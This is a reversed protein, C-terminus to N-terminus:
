KKERRKSPRRRSGHKVYVRKAESRAENKRRVSHIRERAQKYATAHEVIPAPYDKGIVCGSWQQEMATMTHPEALHEDSVEALEPVWRRIFVGTPDQDRVQKIPSYIRVTNIGTVGSQMQFQPFHIGPEFDLFHKALFVATPRWHLWLHYAAFSALMARMRFNVWGTKKLCRICADVMPYGTQGDCWAEFRGQDFENERLGDYARSLNEFELRPEDELKQMFHCHWRLRGAFSSLSQLWRGDVVGGDAKFQRLEVRRRELAQHVQRIGIAGWALYPSLRSCGQWGTVPSSMDARYNVGRETLFTDLVKNAVSEGGRQAETKENKPLGLEKISQLRGYEIGEPWVLKDPKQAVPQKMREQWKDSWGNRNKLRRVVGNQPIETWGVGHEDAWARVRLDRDFTIRNGTEEHSWIHEIPGDKHLDNLVGPMMGVRFTVGGGQSRLWEDVEVLCENIFQVHSSDFEASSLLEPEYVYIVVVPGRTAAEALSSHDTVRLDRKLWVVQFGM